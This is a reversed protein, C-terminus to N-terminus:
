HPPASSAAAGPGSARLDLSTLRAALFSAQEQLVLASPHSSPVFRIAFGRPAKVKECGDAAVEDVDQLLVETGEEPNLRDFREGM